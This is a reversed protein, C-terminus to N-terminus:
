LMDAPMKSKQLAEELRTLEEDSKANLIAKRLKARQEITLKPATSSSATSSSSSSQDGPQGPVFTNEMTSKKATLSAALIAGDPSGFLQEAEEREQKKV